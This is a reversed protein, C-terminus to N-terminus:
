NTSERIDKLKLQITPSKNWDDTTLEYALDVQQGPRVLDVYKAMGFGVASISAQGDTVWFKITDKGMIQPASKVVLQRSCFVPSSNGEGYPELGEILQAVELSLSSLTVEADMHIIPVMDRIELIDKAFLNIKKKFDEVHEEKITLGAALKHGGFTVLIEACHHLAENLHFGAISRASATGVGDEISIIITPRYYTEAM